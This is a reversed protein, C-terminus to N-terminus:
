VNRLNIEKIAKLYEIGNISDPELYAGEGWENWATLFIFDKGQHESISILESLYRKFKLPTSGKIVIGKRGRRPTDDYSVFAGYFIEKDRCKRANKILRKWIIDYSYVNLTGYGHMVKSIKNIIRQYTSQKSWGSYIPEYRFKINTQPIKEREDFRHIFYVGDFGYNVALKNWYECMRKIEDSYHFICFLPKNDKKVYRDDRFFPLLYEFHNYWDKEEGIIYPILIQPGKRAKDSNDMSPAWANGDKVNSWSRKWSTNDWAFFFDIDIDKNELIIKSPKTLLNKENNFWYHYIGWGDIGYEKAMKAQWAVDDKVSLDYYKGDQPEKPQHHGAFLSKAKRVTVWDSFGKGWFEDNEPISHYQPLYMSFIKIKNM